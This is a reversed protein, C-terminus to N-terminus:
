IDEWLTRVATLAVLPAADARLTLAGLTVLTAGSNQSAHVEDRTWGGEPGIMLTARPPRMVRQLLLTFTDVSPEVLMLMPERRPLAIWKDFSVADAVTPVVARGCQKASSVAIRQWRSVRNGREIATRSIESRETIVPQIGAAGLMVLDRVVDDMKDSKLVALALVIPIRPEPASRVPELLRVTAVKKEITAIEGKWERGAGNFVRVADGPALRLVRSLHTSEDEPLAVIKASANRGADPAYFRPLL